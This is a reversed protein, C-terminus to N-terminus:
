DGLLADIEAAAEDLAVQVTKVGTIALAVKTAIIDEVQSWEPIVPRAKATQLAQAFVPLLPMAAIAEADELAELNVPMQGVKAMEVQAHKDTMFQVFKWAAAKKADSSPKFLMFNEGGLVSISGASGAPLPVASYNIGASTNSAGRWPGDLQMAYLGSAWGDTDGVAGPDMSPGALAGESYLNRLEQIVAVNTASNIYGTATTNDPSLVSGGSSWIYPGVNWIGTWPEVYGITTQSTLTRIASWLGSLTTPVSVSAATLLDQNYFLIKTNTNAAIGYYDSGMRNSSNPAALVKAATAEYDDFDSVKELVNLSQFQPVFAIDGRLVDPLVTTTAGLVVSARLNGWEMFVHEVKIGKNASEFEGILTELVVIQGDSASYNHWFEITVENNSGNQCASLTLFSAVMVLLLLMTKKM